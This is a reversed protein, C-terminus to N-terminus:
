LENHVNKLLEGASSHGQISSLQFFFKEFSSYPEEELFEKHFSNRRRVPFCHNGTKNHHTKLFIKWPYKLIKVELNIEV